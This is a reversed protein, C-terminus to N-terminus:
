VTRIFSCERGTKKLVALIEDSSLTSEVSVKQAEMDIDLKTVEPVCLSPCPDKLSFSACTFREGNVRGLVRKVAGSCGECTM